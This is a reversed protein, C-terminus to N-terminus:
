EGPLSPPHVVLVQCPCGDLLATVTNHLDFLSNREHAGLILLDARQAWVERRLELGPRGRFFRAKVDREPDFGSRVKSDVYVRLQDEETEVNGLDYEARSAASQRPESCVHVVSVQADFTEQWAAATSLVLDISSDADVAAIIRKPRGTSTPPAVLVPAAAVRSLRVSVSGHLLRQLASRCHTGAV